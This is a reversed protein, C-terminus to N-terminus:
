LGKKKKHEIYLQTVGTALGWSAIGIYFNNVNFGGLFLSSSVLAIPLLVMPIYEEKIVNISKLYTALISLGLVMIVLEPPIFEMLDINSLDM